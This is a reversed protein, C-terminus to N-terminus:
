PACGAILKDAETPFRERLRKKVDDFETTTKQQAELECLAVLPRTDAGALADAELYEARAAKADGKQYLVAARYYHAVMLDPKEKVARGLLKLAEDPQEKRFKVFGLEAAAEADFQKKLVQSLVAAADDLRASQSLWYGQRTLAHVNAPNKKAAKTWAELAGPADGQLERLEAMVVDPRPDEPALAIAEALETEARKGKRLNMAARAKLLHPEVNKPSRELWADALEDAVTWQKGEVLVEGARQLQADSVDPAKWIGQLIKARAEPSTAQEARTLVEQASAGGGSLVVAAAVAVVLLGVVALVVPLNSRKGPAPVPAAPGPAPAVQAEIRDAAVHIAAGSEPPQYAPVAQQTPAQAETRAPSAATPPLEPGLEPANALEDAKLGPISPDVERARRLTERRKDSSPFLYGVYTAVEDSSALQAEGGVMEMADIFVGMSQFRSAPNKNLATLCVAELARPLSPDFQSPPSLKGEAIKMVVEDVSNGTFPRRGCMQEYLMVGAAFIDARHDVPRALIMEPSMYFFKGKLTGPETGAGWNATKAIGFDIVKIEGGVGVHINDPTFDRHVLALPQGTEDQAEHAAGLGRCAECLIRLAIPLPVRKGDEAAKARLDAFTRGELLEMAIFPEGSVQGLEHIRVVNPHHIQATIRAENLFMRVISSDKVLHPLLKKVAVMPGFTGAEDIHRGVYVEAMGGTAIRSTLRYRGIWLPNGLNEV